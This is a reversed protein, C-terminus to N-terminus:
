TPSSQALPADPNEEESGASGGMSAVFLQAFQTDLDSLSTESMYEEFALADGKKHHAWIWVLCGICRHYTESTMGLRAKDIMQCARDRVADLDGEAGVSELADRLYFETQVALDLNDSDESVGDDLVERITALSMERIATEVRVLSSWRVVKVFDQLSHGTKEHYLFGDAITLDNIIHQSTM